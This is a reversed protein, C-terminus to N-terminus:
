PASDTEATICIGKGGDASAKCFRIKANRGRDIFYRFFIKRLFHFGHQLTEVCKAFLLLVLM